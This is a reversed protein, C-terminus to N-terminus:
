KLCAPIVIFTPLTKVLECLNNTVPGYMDWNSFITSALGKVVALIKPKNNVTAFVPAGSDGEEVRSTSQSYIYGKWSINNLNAIRRSDSTSTDSMYNITVVQIPYKTMVSTVQSFENRTLVDAIPKNALEPLEQNWWILAFDEQPEIRAKEGNRSIKDLVTRPFEINVVQDVNVNNWYGVRVIKGDTKRTVYKYQGLKLTIKKMGSVQALLMCHAATVAAHSNILTANCYATTTDGKSDPADSTIQIVSDFQPDIAATGNTLAFTNFSLFTTILVALCVKM